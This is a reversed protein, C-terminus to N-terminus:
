GTGGRLDKKVIKGYNNKPLSDHFEYRKPRKFRAIQSLCLADLDAASASGVVHAVVIEGWEPDPAGIVAVERLQPHTLLVEEVERPYINSGGSIIVDKSRDILTLFGDQDMVGIDGTQLWGDRITRATAEPANWYGRMVAPGKVTIEGTQGAPLPAGDPDTIRLQCMPQAVGVSGLRERWRPHTRDSVQARPLTTISMPCEGQGYIQVFRNGLTETAELIDAMYMPAGAYIITDIGDGRHGTRRAADTLRRVMTPAAFISLRGIRPALDLVEEADFGGSPAVVHRAGGIVNMFNYLGAGHSMPAAYLIADAPTPRAIGAYYGLCMAQINGTTLMVGKPRGTTGSTYFLWVTDDLARALPAGTPPTNCMTAFRAARIMDCGPMHPPESADGGLVCLRSGSDTLIWALERPHLKANIPVAVAGAWWIGYLAILYDTHNPMFLAVRDGAGIGDAQLAAAFGAARRAFGAYDHIVRPGLLLAPARPMLRATADLWLAPTM